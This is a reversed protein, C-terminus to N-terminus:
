QERPASRLLIVLGILILALPWLVEWRLVQQLGISLFIIGLIATGVVPRRYTPIALRLFVELLLFAGAGAFALGWGPILLTGPLLGLDAALLALGAWIFIAAWIIRSLPDRQYRRQWRRDSSWQEDRRAEPPPPSQPPTQATM